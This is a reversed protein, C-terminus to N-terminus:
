LILKAMATFMYLAYRLCSPLSVSVMSRMCFYRVGTLYLRFYGVAFVRDAKIRFEYIDSETLKKSFSDIYYYKGTIFKVGSLDIEKVKYDKGMKEVECFGVMDVIIIVHRGSAM